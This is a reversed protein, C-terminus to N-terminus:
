RNATLWKTNWIKRRKMNRNKNQQSRTAWRCNGPQYSGDNDRRDLTKGEPCQGMDALFAPFSRWRKCVKIGRGGYNDYNTANPNTCRQIMSGWARYTATHSMGHQM